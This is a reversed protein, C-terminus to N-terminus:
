TCSSPSRRRSPRPAGYAVLGLAAFYDFTGVYGPSSPILTALTGTALAFLPGRPRGRHWLGLAVAVFVLGEFLWAAFSLLALRATMAPTHLVGLM